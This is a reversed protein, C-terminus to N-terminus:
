STARRAIRDPSFVIGLAWSAVSIIVGGIVADWFFHDISFHLQPNREAVRDAVWLLGANIAVGLVVGFLGFTMLMMPFAITRLIPRLLANLLGIILAVVATSEWGDVHIGDVLYAAIWVCAALIAWEVAFAIV